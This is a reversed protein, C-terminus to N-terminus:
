SCDIGSKHWRETAIRYVETVQVVTTYFISDDNRPSTSPKLPASWRNVKDRVSCRKEELFFPWDEDLIAM